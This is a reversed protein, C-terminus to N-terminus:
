SKLAFYELFLRHIFVYSGGVRQMLTCRTAYNLFRAYNRPTYGMCWLITRLVIHQVLATGAIVPQSRMIVLLGVSFGLGLGHFFYQFLLPNMLQFVDLGISIDVLLILLSAISASRWIGENPSTKVQVSAGVWGFSFLLSITLSVIIGCGLGGSFQVAVITLLLGILTTILVRRWSLQVSEVPKIRDFQGFLTLMLGGLLGIPIGVIPGIDLSWVSHSISNFIFAQGIWEAPYLRWAAEIPPLAINSTVPISIISRYIFGLLFGYATGLILGTSLRYIVMQFPRLFHQPQMQELSFISQANLLMKLALWQLWRETQPQTYPPNKEPRTLMQDVYLRLIPQAQHGGEQIVQKLDDLSLGQYAITMLSLMLPSQALEQLPKDQGLVERLGRLAEGAQGLYTQIQEATLPQILVAGQFRLRNVLVDYDKLRSCVLIATQGHTRSFQNIAQVCRERRSDALEDLGDLALTLEQQKVWLEGLKKPLQYKDSLEEVLWISLPQGDWTSLNLVIPLPSSSSQEARNVLDNTLQLLTTTKGSGPAGLLLLTAGTGM